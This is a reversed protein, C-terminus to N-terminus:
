VSRLVGRARMRRRSVRWSWDKMTKWLALVEPDGQEWKLLMEQAKEEARPDEEKLKNFLVYYKGVFHDGKLGEDKPTRGGGYVPLGADVQLHPRARDNPHNVKRLEAGANKLIRSLSEGLANNRLHGLHLPKNTNPSSFEIMIKKGALMSSAGWSPSRADRLVAAAVRGRDFIFMSIPAKRRSQGLESAEADRSLAEAAAQAIRAPATRLLKAFPFM